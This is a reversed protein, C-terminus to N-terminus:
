VLIWGLLVTPHWLQPRKPDLTWWSRPTIARGDAERILTVSTPGAPLPRSYAVRLDGIKPLTLVAKGTSVQRLRFRANGTFRASGSATKKRFRPPAVKRGKRKGAASSFFNRYATDLDALAQQLPVSSVENLWERKPTLKSATLAASVVNTPLHEGTEAYHAKRMALADNFVVRVCGFLRGIAASQDMTPYVRYRYRLM